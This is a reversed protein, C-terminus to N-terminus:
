LSSYEYVAIYLASIRWEKYQRPQLGPRGLFREFGLLPLLCRTPPGGLRRNLPYWHKNGRSTLRRTTFSTGQRSTGSGRTGEYRPSSNNRPFKLKIKATNVLFNYDHRTKADLLFIDGTNVSKYCLIYM